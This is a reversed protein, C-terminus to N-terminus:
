LTYSFNITFILNSFSAAGANTFNIVITKAGTTAILRQFTLTNLINNSNEVVTGLVDYSGSFNSVPDIPLDITCDALGGATSDVIISGYVTVVNGVKTFIFDANSTTTGNNDTITPTYKGSQAQWVAAGDTADTCKYVEGTNMEWYSGVKFGLDVDDNVTPAITKFQVKEIDDSADLSYLAGQYWELKLNLTCLLAIGGLPGEIINTTNTLGGEDSVQQLTPTPMNGVEIKKTTGEPSQSTDSVDVICLFDASDAVSLATLDTIKIGAM